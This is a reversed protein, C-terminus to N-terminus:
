KKRLRDHHQARGATARESTELHVIVPIGGKISDIRVSFVTAGANAHIRSARMKDDLVLALGLVAVGHMIHPQILAREIRDLTETDAELVLREPGSGSLPKTRELRIKVDVHMNVTTM